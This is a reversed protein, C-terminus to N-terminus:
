KNPMSRGQSSSLPPRSLPQQHCLNYRRKVSGRGHECGGGNGMMEDRADPSTGKFRIGVEVHGAAGSPSWRTFPLNLCENPVVAFTQHRELMRALAICCYRSWGPLAAGLTRHLTTLLPCTFLTATATRGCYERPATIAKRDRWNMPKIVTSRGLDETGVFTLTRGVSAHWCCIGLCGVWSTLALSHTNANWACLRLLSCAYLSQVLGERLDHLEDRHCCRFSTPKQKADAKMRSQTSERQM